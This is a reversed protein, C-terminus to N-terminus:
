AFPNPNNPVETAQQARRAMEQQVQEALPKPLAVPLSSGALIPDQGRYVFTRAVIERGLETMADAHELPAALTMRLMWRPGDVGVIRVIGAGEPATGVIERGWPGQEVVVTLGQKEMDATLDAVTQKWQGPTRPAAFAVPTCRGYKTLIHLMTPGEPGMEVQVESNMPLPIILSGLNLAGQGFDSFDFDEFPVSDGDFPGHEGTIADHIPDDPEEAAHAAEVLNAALVQEDTHEDESQTNKSFPWIAM